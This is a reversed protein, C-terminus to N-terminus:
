EDQDNEDNVVGQRRGRVGVGVGVGVKFVFVIIVYKVTSYSYSYHIGTILLIKIEDVTSTRYWLYRQYVREFSNETLHGLKQSCNILFLGLSPLIPTSYSYSGSLFRSRCGQKQCSFTCMGISQPYRDGVDVYLQRLKEEM